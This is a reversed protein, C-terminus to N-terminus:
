QGEAAELIRTINEWREPAVGRLVEDFQSTWQNGAAEVQKRTHEIFNDTFAEEDFGEQHAWVSWQTISQFYATPDSDPPLLGLDNLQQAADLVKRVPAFQEQLGKPALQFMQDAVPPLRLFELCYADLQTTVPDQPLVQQLQQQVLQQAEEKLPEVVLGKVDIDMPADGDNLFYGTFAEGTSSGVNSLFMQFPNNQGASSTRAGSARPQEEAARGAHPAVRLAATSSTSSRWVANGSSATAGLGRFSFVRRLASWLSPAEPAPPPVPDRGPAVMKIEVVIMLQVTPDRGGPVSIFPEPDGIPDFGGLSVPPRSDGPSPGSAGAAEFTPYVNTSVAQAFNGSNTTPASLGTDKLFAITAWDGGTVVPLSQPALTTMAGSDTVLSADQYKFFIKDNYTYFTPYPATGAGLSGTNRGAPQDDPALEVTGNTEWRMSQTNFTRYRLQLEQGGALSRDNAGSGGDLSNAVQNWVAVLYNVANAPDETRGYRLSEAAQWSTMGPPTDAAANSFTGDPNFAVARLQADLGNDNGATNDAVRYSIIEAPDIDGGGAIGGPSRDVQLARSGFGAFSEELSPCIGGGGEACANSTVTTTCAPSNLCDSGGRQLSSCGPAAPDQSCLNGIANVVDGREVTEFCAIGQVRCDPLGPQLASCTADDGSESCMKIINAWALEPLRAGCTDGLLNAACDTSVVYSERPVADQPNGSQAGQAPQQPALAYAARLPALACICAAALAVALTVASWTTPQSRTEHM